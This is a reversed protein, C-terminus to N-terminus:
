PGAKPKKRPDSLRARKNTRTSVVGSLTIREAPMRGIEALYIKRRPPSMLAVKALVDNVSMSELKSPGEDRRRDFFGSKFSRYIDTLIADARQGLGSLSKMTM